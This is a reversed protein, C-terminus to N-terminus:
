AADGMIRRTLCDGCEWVDGEGLVDASGDLYEVEVLRGGPSVEGAAIQGCGCVVLCTAMDPRTM